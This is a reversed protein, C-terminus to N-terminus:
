RSRSTHLEQDWDVELRTESVQELPVEVAEGGDPAVRITGERLGDLRGRLVRRRGLPSKLRIRVRRGSFRDFDEPRKLKRDLGPSSVELLYSYPVLDEVDLITGIDRSVRECDEHTIGRESDIYIRLVRHRGAGGLEVEVLECGAARVVDGVLSEIRDLKVAM